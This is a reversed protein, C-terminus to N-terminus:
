PAGSKIVANLSNKNKQCHYAEIVELMRKAIRKAAAIIEPKENNLMDDFTRAMM